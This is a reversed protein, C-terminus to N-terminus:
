RAVEAAGCVPCRKMKRAARYRDVADYLWKREFWGKDSLHTIWKEENQLFDKIFIWYTETDSACNGVVKWEGNPVLCREGFFSFSVAVERNCVECPMNKM